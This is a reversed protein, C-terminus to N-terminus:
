PQWMRSIHRSVHMPLPKAGFAQDHTTLTFFEPDDVDPDPLDDETVYPCSPLTLPPTLPPPSPPLLPLPRLSPPLFPIRQGGESGPYRPPLM